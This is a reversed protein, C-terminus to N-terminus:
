FTLGFNGTVMHMRSKDRLYYDYSLAMEYQKYFYKGGFGINFVNGGGPHSVIPVPVTHNELGHYAVFGAAGKKNLEFAYGLNANLVLLSGEDGALDYSAALELPIQTSHNKM